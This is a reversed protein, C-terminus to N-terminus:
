RRWNQHSHYCCIQRSQPIGVWSTSTRASTVIDGHAQAIRWKLMTINANLYARIPDKNFKIAYKAASCKKLAGRSEPAQDSTLIPLGKVLHDSCVLGGLDILAVCTTPGTNDQSSMEAMGRAGDQYPGIGERPRKGVWETHASPSIAKVKATSTFRVGMISKQADLYAKDDQSKPASISGTLIRSMLEHQQQINRPKYHDAIKKELIKRDSHTTNQHEAMRFKDLVYDELSTIINQSSNGIRRHHGDFAMCHTSVDYIHAKLGLTKVHDTQKTARIAIQGQEPAHPFIADITFERTVFVPEDPICKNPAVIDNPTPSILEGSTIEPEAEQAKERASNVSTTLKSGDLLEKTVVAKAVALHQIQSWEKRLQAVENQLSSILTALQSLTSFNTSNNDIVEQVESIQKSARTKPM